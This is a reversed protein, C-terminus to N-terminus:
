MKNVFKEFDSYDGDEVYCTIPARLDLAFVGLVSKGDVAYGGQSLSVKSVHKQAANIFDYIDSVLLLKIDM